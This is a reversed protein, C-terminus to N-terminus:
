KEIAELIEEKSIRKTYDPDTWDYTITGDRSILYFAPVPLTDVNKGSSAEALDIGYGEYKKLTEDDLKFAVGFAKAANMPSDSLLIYELDVKAISEKLHEPDDPSIAVIQYGAAAIDEQVSQVEALHKSCYPCWSGRYLATKQESVVDTLDVKKGKLTRVKVEPVSDGAALPQAKEASMAIGSKSGSGKDKKKKKDSQAFAVATCLVLACTLAVKAFKM